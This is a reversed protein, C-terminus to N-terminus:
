FSTPCSFSSLAPLAFPNHVSGSQMQFIAIRGGVNFIVRKRDSVNTNRVEAGDLLRFLAWPGDKRIENQINGAPPDFAVRALGVPGPWAVAIPRPQSNRHQFMVSQGDIELAVGQAKPDLAEPTIQFQVKATPQGAFFADRIEAAAQMQELVQQSIGLDTDNVRKWAWPRARTDVYELLHDRFFSDILGNPAFLKEFDQMAVDAQSRKDFPYRNAIAQECFPLVQSQWLANISARTGDATIGSSGSAIQTAWRQMPGDIRASAEQFRQIAAGGQGQIDTSGQNFSLKNLEQYVETLNGMMQDLQSPQGEPREVLKQLWSFREEVYAGPPKPPERGEGSLVASNSLADLFIQSQINLNSRLELSAVDSVGESAGEAVGSSLVSRDETLRTEKAVGTLINVIPSTPGSLVNTVEVAHSLSEMPVIDLDGLLSDYRSIFDNYYLDLVDRSMALLAEESQEAEYREGLVWSENQIREAVGLAEALFVNRFGDYTFIGEIGENLPKGSSRVMVRSVAPGGIDTVRWQPLSQAQPSNIIGNYVRQALPMEALLAQVQEVLPGNLAIKTMPQSLMADLHVALDQRLTERGAGPYALSWDIQMWEKVLDANMPGQLGLMLYIKLAEYLLDPNNMNAQMQEELRLLMRPLMHQSLAARYTQAAETGIVDGQYLGWQLKAPPEPDNVTPNGPMDRLTNLPEVIAPLDTDGIPNGPINAAAARYSAIQSEAGAILAKNGLYSRTWITSLAAVAIVTAAIAGRRVWRYRREVKDDASVLGAEPFIVGEFLRTLFFSRGSGRGSGIAQRGIGFTQAMGMMLRDIPTGEQVGSAFYVGRLMQRNEFRNEQFVETLFDRAVQRITAVQNPFGVILSRRQHDTESQMKELLQTNLREMLGSFKEDFGDVPSEKGTSKGLDLTFGWVQEREEKGLTDFFETFGAILDAKTFLVYVPFRVGLKERLEQLRRRVALAHGKRTMEDQLSLDTLSIAIVAGNVPQRKRYKKLLGLFGLWAANDADADSEQTTYRGATDILVANNTFWWDCNRTGGVGGIATRGLDDSLPFQLGSNVIATTKGAGPPGIIVYWPLEYLHRRGLKSKRLKTMAGRLKDKLDALEEKVADDATDVEVAEVIEDTLKKDRRGRTLAVVLMVILAVLWLIAVGIGRWLMGSFAAGIFPGFMWFCISLALTVLIVITYVSSFIRSLARM